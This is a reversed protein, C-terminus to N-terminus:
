PRGLGDFGPYGAWKGSYAMFAFWAELVLLVPSLAAGLGCTLVSILGILAAGGLQALLAQSCHYRVFASREHYIVLLVLPGVGPAFFVLGHALAAMLKDDETLAVDTVPHVFHDAM